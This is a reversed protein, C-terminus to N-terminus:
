REKGYNTGVSSKDKEHENSRQDSYHTDCRYQTSLSFIVFLIMIVFSLKLWISLFESM